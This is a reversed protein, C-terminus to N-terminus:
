FKFYFYIYDRYWVYENRILLRQWSLKKNNYKHLHSPSSPQYWSHPCFSSMINVALPCSTQLSSVAVLLVYKSTYFFDPMLPFSQPSRPPLPLCCLQPYCFPSAKLVHHHTGLIHFPIALLIHHCTGLLTLFLFMITTLLPLCGPLCLSSYLSSVAPLVHYCNGLPGNPPCSLPHRFPTRSLVHHRTCTSTLIEPHSWAWCKTTNISQKLRCM